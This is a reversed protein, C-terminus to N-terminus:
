EKPAFAIKITTATMFLLGAWWAQWIGYGVLAVIFCAAFCAMAIAFEPQPLKRIRSLVFTFFAAAWLAGIFGFELWLQLINNHPHSVFNRITYLDGFSFNTIHESAQMGHGYLPKQLAYQSVANWIDIRAGANASRWDALVQALNDCWPFFYPALVALATVGCLAIWFTFRPLHRAFVFTGGGVFCATMATESQSFLCLFIFLCLGIIAALVAKGQQIKIYLFPWYLLSLVVAAHNVVSEIVKKDFTLGHFIRFLPHDLLLEEFVLLMTLGFFVDFVRFIRHRMDPTIHTALTYIGFGSIFVVLEKAAKFIVKDPAIAWFYSAAALLPLSVVTVLLSVDIAVPKKESTYLALLALLFLGVPATGYIKAAFVSVVPMVCLLLVYLLFFSNQRLYTVKKPM